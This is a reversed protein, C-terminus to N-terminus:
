FKQSAQSVILALWRPFCVFRNLFLHVQKIEICDTLGQYSLSLVGVQKFLNVPSKCPQKLIEVLKLGRSLRNKTDSGLDSSFQSFSQLESFQALELKCSGSVLKMGQWQASSGVRTVSLGQDIAPKIGLLFLDVALFLQGDTISILNTTIYASVDGALTEVLPLATISGGGLSKSM